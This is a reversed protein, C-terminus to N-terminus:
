KIQTIITDIQINELMSFGNIGDLIRYVIVKIKAMKVVIWFIQKCLTVDKL